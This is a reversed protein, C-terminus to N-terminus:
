RGWFYDRRRRLSIILVFLYSLVADNKNPTPIPIPNAKIPSIIPRKTSLLTDRSVLAM